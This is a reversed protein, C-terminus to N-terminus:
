RASGSVEVSATGAPEAMAVTLNGRTTGSSMPRFQVTVAQSQGPALWFSVPGGLLTFPGNNGFSQVVGALMGGGSNRLQITRTAVASMPASLAIAGPMSLKGAQVSATVRVTANPHKPDGSRIQLSQSVKGSGIPSLFIGISISSQPAISYTGPTSVTFPAGLGGVEVSLASTASQNRIELMKMTGPKGTATVPFTLSAAVSLVGGTPQPTPTPTSISSPTPTATTTATPTPTSTPPNLLNTVADAFVDFDVSGWGSTQDYEPGAAFGAVGNYGNNGITVDRIGATAGKQGALQYIIPNLNGLRTDGAQEAIVRSFGAWLPAALSTGGICCVVEATGNEDHALFAGPSNPSAMMAVDPVDRAGDNPVGAGTQYEPKAFIQSAGGGSAGSVDNWASEAVYGQDAGNVFNPKFQTGGVSTVNPDASMENVSPTSNVICSNTAPNVGLGASGQDGSSVFVSQGQTAAQEFLPDIVGNIFAPSPGCFGYSISIAGCQNDDVAGTIDDVLYGGLHYVISAGPAAVHAWQLDIEAEIEAGNIGPNTGHVERTYNIPSLNFQATFTSMTSDLFDSVGVVAICDGGGDKGSATREDYFNQFDGPGFAQAGNIVAEPSVASNTFNSAPMAHVMNDLGTVASIVSAFRAPIFPDATNGFADGNGFRAIKVAFTRQAQATSGTFAIHGPATETVELGESALWEAIAKKEGATPGFRHFFEGTKLWKHYNPSAPDHQEALLRKLEAQHRLAFRIQMELPMNPDADSAITANEAAMPHNGALQTRDDSYSLGLLCAFSLPALLFLGILFSLHNKEVRSLQHTSV